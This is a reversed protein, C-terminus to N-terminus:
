SKSKNVHQGTSKEAKASVRRRLSELLGRWQVIVEPLAASAQDFTECVLAIPDASTLQIDSAVTSAVALAASDGTWLEGDVLVEVIMRGRQQALNAAAAIADEVSEAKVDCMMQDLTVRM